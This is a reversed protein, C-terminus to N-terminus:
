ANNFLATKVTDDCNGSKPMKFIDVSKPFAEYWCTCTNVFPSNDGGTASVDTPKCSFRPEGAPPPLIEGGKSTAQVTYVACKETITGGLKKDITDVQCGNLITSLRAKCHEVKSADDSGMGFQFSGVCGETSFSLGLWLDDSTGPHDYTETIASAKKLGSSTTGTGFSVPPVIVMNWYDRNSCFDTIYDVVPPQNFANGTTACVPPPVTSPTTPATPAATVPNRHKSMADFLVNAHQGLASGKPHFTRMMRGPTKSDSEPDQTDALMATMLSEYTPYKEAGAWEWPPSDTSTESVKRNQGPFVFDLIDQASSTIQQANIGTSTLADTPGESPSTYDSYPSWFWTQADIMQSDTHGPECYRHGNYLEDLGDVYIVGYMKPNDAVKKILANANETLVNMSDCGPDQDNFFAVYSLVYVQFSESPNAGGANRGAWAVDTMAVILENFLERSDIKTQAAALAKDCSQDFSDWLHYVCATLVSSLGIDNGGSTMVAVQPKGFPQGREKGKYDEKYDGKDLQKSRLDTPLDGTHAHFSFRPLTKDGGNLMAWKDANAAM